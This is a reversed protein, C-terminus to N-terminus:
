FKAIIGVVSQLEIQRLHSLYGPVSSKCVANLNVHLFSFESNLALRRVFSQREDNQMCTHNDNQLSHHLFAYHVCMGPVMLTAYPEYQVCNLNLM